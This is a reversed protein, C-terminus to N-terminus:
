KELFTSELIETNFTLPVKNKLLTQEQLFTNFIKAGMKNGNLQILHVESHTNKLFNIEDFCIIKVKKTIRKKYDEIFRSVSSNNFNNPTFLGDITNKSVFLKEILKYTEKDNKKESILIFKNDFNIKYHKLANRYGIFQDISNQSILSDRFFVIKKCGSKILRETAIFGMQRDDFVVKNCTVAKATNNFLILSTKDKIIKNLHDFNTTNRALSVFIGDVQQQLLRDVLKKENEQSDNSELVVLLYGNKEAENIIGTILDTYLKNKIEPVIIGVLKTKQTRLYAAQLNPSYGIKEAYEIVRKKTNISIDPYDQMAKSVTTPSVNLEKAIEKLTIKM